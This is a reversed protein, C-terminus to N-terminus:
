SLHVTDLHQNIQAEAITQVCIPCQVMTESAVALKDEAAAARTRKQGGEKALDEAVLTSAKRKSSTSASTEDEGGLEIPQDSTDGETRERKTSVNVWSDLKNKQRGAREKSSMANRQKKTLEPEQIKTYTGGCEIEHKGWWTDGKGPPRNMSRKVHGFYPPQTQCPGDCKWVHTRYSEVEDHFTHYITVEYNGHNNIADALLQFGAGHGTGDDGRSHRWSTTIFFYAHIAEHLLTNITDSRPRYQLLPTSLKLRIRTFKGSTPDKSLECIGACSELTL